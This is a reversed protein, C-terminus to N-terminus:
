GVLDLGRHEYFRSDETAVIAERLPRPVRDLPVWTAGRARALETLDAKVPRASPLERMLPVLLALAAVFAVGVLLPLVKRVMVGSEPAHGRRGGTKSMAGRGAPGTAPRLPSSHAPGRARSRPPPPLMYVIPTESKMMTACLRRPSIKPGACRNCPAVYSTFISTCAGSSSAFPM